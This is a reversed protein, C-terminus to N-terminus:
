DDLLVALDNDFISAAEWLGTLPDGQPLSEGAFAQDVLQPSWDGMPQLSAEGEGPLARNGSQATATAERPVEVSGSRPNTGNLDHLPPDLLTILDAAVDGEDPGPQRQTLTLASGASVVDLAIIPVHLDPGGLDKLRLTLQGDSITVRYSRVLVEGVAANLSDVQNGELFISGNGNVDHFAQGSILNSPSPAPATAINGFHAGIVNTGSTPVIDPPNATTRTFGPQLVQRVRYTGPGLNLFSFNGSADTLTSSEGIDLIGNNNPDLFITWGPLGSEGADQNANGNVDHFARGSISIQQFNGFNVGTVSGSILVLDPPNATTRLWGSQTVVRVRYLGVALNTFSYNGSADTLTSVEGGDLNGNFNSDLFLTWGSLGPEGADQSANGNLDNFKQGSIANTSVSPLSFNAIWTGWNTAVSSPPHLREEAGGYHS